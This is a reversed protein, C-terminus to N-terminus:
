QRRRRKPGKALRYIKRFEVDTMEYRTELVPGDAAIARSEADEIIKTICDLRDQKSM